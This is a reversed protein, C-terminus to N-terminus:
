RCKLMIQLERCQFSNRWLFWCTLLYTFFLNICCVIDAFFQQIQPVISINPLAVAEDLM